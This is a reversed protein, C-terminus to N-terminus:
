HGPQAAGASAKGAAGAQVGPDHDNELIEGLMRRLAAVPVVLRRGIRLTPIEGVRAAEYASARSIGLIPCAEEVTITPRDRWTTAPTEHAQTIPPM